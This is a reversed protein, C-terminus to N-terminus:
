LVERTVPFPFADVDAGNTQGAFLAPDDRLQGLAVTDSILPRSAMGNAFVTSPELPDFRPQDGMIQASDNSGCATAVLGVLVAVLWHAAYRGRWRRRLNGLPSPVRWVVSAGRAEIRCM